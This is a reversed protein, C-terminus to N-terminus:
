DTYILYCEADPYTKNETQETQTDDFVTEAGKDKYLGYGKQPAAILTCNAPISVTVDEQKGEKDIKHMTINRDGADSKEIEDVFEPIKTERDLIVNGKAVVQEKEKDDVTRMIVAEYIEIELTDKDITYRYYYKENGNEGVYSLIIYKGDKEEIEDFDEKSDNSILFGKVNEEMYDEYVGEMFWGKSYKPNDKNNINKTFYATGDIFIESEGTDSERTIVYDDDKKFLSWNEVIKEEKGDKDKNGTYTTMEYGVSKYKKLLNVGNNANFMKEYTLNDKTVVANDSESANEDKNEKGSNNNSGCGSFIATLLVFVFGLLFKRKMNVGKSDYQNSIM